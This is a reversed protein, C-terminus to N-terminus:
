NFSKATIASPLHFYRAQEYRRNLSEIMYWPYHNYSWHKLRENWDFHEKAWDYSRPFLPPQDDFWSLLTVELDNQEDLPSPTEIQSQILKLLHEDGDDGDIILDEQRVAQNWSAVWVSTIDLFDSANSDSESAEYCEENADFREETDDRYGESDAAKDDDGNAYQGTSHAM